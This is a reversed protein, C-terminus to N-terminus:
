KTVLVQVDGDRRLVDVGINNQFRVLHLDLTTGAVDLNHIRLETL